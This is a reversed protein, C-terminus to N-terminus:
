LIHYYSHKVPKGHSNIFLDKYFVLFRWMCIYSSGTTQFQLPGGSGGVDWCDPGRPLLDAPFALGIFAREMNPVRQSQGYVWNETSGTLCLKYGRLGVRLSPGLSSGSSYLLVQLLMNSGAARNKLM